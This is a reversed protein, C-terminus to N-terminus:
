WKYLQLQVLVSASRINIANTKTFFYSYIIFLSYRVGWLGIPFVRPFTVHYARSATLYNSTMTEKSWVGLSNRLCYLSSPIYTRAATGYAGSWNKAKKVIRSNEQLCQPLPPFLGQRDIGIKTLACTM